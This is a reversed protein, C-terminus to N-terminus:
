VCSGTLPTLNTWVNASTCSCFSGSSDIYVDGIACTAPATAIPTFFVVGSVKVTMKATYSQITSGSSGADSTSITVSGGAANGTAAGGRLDMGVGAANSGSNSTPQIDIAATQTSTVGAGLFYHTNLGNEGGVIFQNGATATGGRGLLIVDNFNATSSSFGIAISDAGDVTITSGIGIGNTDAGVAVDGGIAYTTTGTSSANSGIAISSAVTCSGDYGIAICSNANASVSVGIGIAKSTAQSDKGIAIPENGNCTTDHGICVSSHGESIASYGILTNFDEAASQGTTCASGICTNEIATTSLSADAANGFATGNAGNANANLGFVESNAGTDPNSYVTSSSVTEWNIKGPLATDVRLMQNDAGVPLRTTTTGNHYIIDGATTMPNTMKGDIQTQVASTVGTMYNIETDSTTSSALTKSADTVVVRSATLGTVELSRFGTVDGLDNGIYVSNQVLKGTTTDFRAFANDTASAPGVVNGLQNGSSDCLGATLLQAGQSCGWIIPPKGANSTLSFLFICIVLQLM